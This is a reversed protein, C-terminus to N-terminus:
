SQCWHWPDPAINNVRSASISQKANGLLASLYQRSHMDELIGKDPEGDGSTVLSTLEEMDDCLLEASEVSLFVSYGGLTKDSLSFSM